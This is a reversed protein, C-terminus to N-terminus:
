HRPQHPAERATGSGSRARDAARQRAPGPARVPGGGRGEVAGAASGAAVTVTVAAASPDSAIELMRGGTRGVVTGGTVVAHWGTGYVGQPVDIETRASPGFHVGTPGTTDYSFSLTRNSEDYSLSTPTGAVLVPHPRVLAAVVAADSNTPSPPKALNEALYGNFSWWIWPILAGDLEDVQRDVASPDTTAGFETNLLAGGTSASWARAYGLLTPEAAVSTTYLHFSMGSDPDGGPLAIHTQSQGFNFLVWPEGFLLHGPDSARIAKAMRAYYPDLETQDEAPCGNPDLICPSWTTGPWPENLLDYGIVGPNGKARRALASFIEAARRQLSTRGPGKADDWFSQFAAQIAPNTVYYGPFPAHTNTAGDTETMWGPFGDSGLTPGWGDQHLDILVLLGHSTLMDVTSMFSRVFATDIRGPAPMVSAATLGLRVVDFGHAVLWQADRSSFGEQAPTETGKAVLNVGHLLVVRGESDTLWRGDHGILGDSGAIGLPAVGDSGTTQAAAAPAAPAAAAPASRGAAPWAGLVVVSCAVAIM